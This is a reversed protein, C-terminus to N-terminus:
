LMIRSLSKFIKLRNIQDVKSELMNDINIANQMAGRLWRAVEEDMTLQYIRTTTTTVETKIM